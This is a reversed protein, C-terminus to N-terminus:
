RWIQAAKRMLDASLMPHTERCAVAYAVLAPHAHPDHTLDLVFYDCGHHRKGEASQGDTRSVEFKGYLPGDKSM